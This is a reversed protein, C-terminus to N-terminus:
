SHDPADHIDVGNDDKINSDYGGKILDEAELLFGRANPYPKQSLSTQITELAPRGIAVLANRFASRSDWMTAVKICEVLPRIALKSRMKGLKRAAVVAEQEGVRKTTRKKEFIVYEELVKLCSEELTEDTM